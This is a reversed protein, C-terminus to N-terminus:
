NILNSDKEEFYNLIFGARESMLTSENSLLATLSSRMEDSFVIDGINYSFTTELHHILKIISDLCRIIIVNVGSGLMEELIEVIEHNVYNSLENIPSFVIITALFFASEKKEEFGGNIGLFLAKEITSYDILSLMTQPISEILNSLVWLVESAHNTELLISLKHLLNTDLLDRIHNSQSVSMNGILPLCVSILDEYELYQVITSFMGLEYLKHILSPCKNTIGILCTFVHKLCTISTLGLLPAMMDISSSIASSDVQDPYAFVVSLTSCASESVDQNAYELAINILDMHTGICILSDRAYSCETIVDIVLIAQKILPISGSQLFGSLSFVLGDDIFKTQNGESKPFIICIFGLIVMIMGSNDSVLASLLSECIIPSNFLNQVLRPKEKSLFDINRYLENIRELNGSGIIDSFVAPDLFPFSNVDFFGTGPKPISNPRSIVNNISPRVSRRLTLTRSSREKALQEQYNSLDVGSQQLPSYDDLKRM